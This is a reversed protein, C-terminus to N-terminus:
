QLPDALDLLCTRPLARCEDTTRLGVELGRLFILNPLGLHVKSEVLGSLEAVANALDPHPLGLELGVDLGGSLIPQGNLFTTQTNAPLAM